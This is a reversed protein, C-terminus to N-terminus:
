VRDVLVLVVELFKNLHVEEVVAEDIELTAVVKHEQLVKVLQELVELRVWDGTEEVV